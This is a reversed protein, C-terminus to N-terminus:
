DLHAKVAEAVSVPIGPVAAIEEMTAQRISDLSGFRELLLKRRRPGVGPITDLLSATGVKARRKRHGENAFRHAEDRVRQVLYLGQSRRDLLIPSPRGPVFLEEERKALGALPVENELGFERLVEVAMALQGKGGDVILLDPLIAWATERRPRGIQGPDHLEGAQADKYRQFRRTLAEKMAGYDDNGVTQINFRRYDSKRPAGQVFVVMSAVTQAGQTHSIDYCEIRAPPAPLDLAEQLEAMAQVHKSRDAEWQQRLTALTDQANAAAMQVLAKKQGRRPVTITVKASRKQRLWEEIVMAESVEHPLLVEKPIHAADDYFRTIFDSLIEADSEGETGDLMFYERGILKGYRIFFIQVCADGKERAFAIVDQDAHAASIVKQKAVVKEIAKLQDRYEAAKEFDLNAAATQMKAEIEKTIHDSKGSLFDMLSQIMQRYEARNVAGICPGNCLKIDYYLCARGDQGTIQRDCTLYPFIKRLMDLTQHVAWVSTYPGFYRSGDRTMRRTVTVKPFDDAWHVKIYPYRKDDKLRINYKPKYKKILTNELLLAELESETTITEIDAIERRLRQTKISDVNKHFYSRVRNRLNIAKGVYIVAGFKDKHLYVGPKTPLNKLIEQINEPPTYSMGAIIAM